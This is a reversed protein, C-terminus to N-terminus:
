KGLSAKFLSGGVIIMLTLCKYSSIVFGKFDEVDSVASDTVHIEIVVSSNKLIILHKVM